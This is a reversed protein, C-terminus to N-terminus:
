KFLQILFEDVWNVTSGFWPEFLWFPHPSSSYEEVQSYIEYGDLLAIADDQGAHFRPYQSNIFLSPVAKESIQHLASAAEWIEPIEEYTGGLWQAAMEGEESESHHFAMVGDMNILAHVETSAAGKRQSYAEYMEMGNTYAVLAALQGGASGGLIAIRSSDLGFRDAHEKLWRISEKVDHVGAPFPAELSLRYDMVATIYGRSALAKALPLQLSRDGSRWGGGHVLLIGPLAVNAKTKPAFVDMKLERYGLSKYEIALFDDIGDAEKSIPKLEPFNKRYKDYSSSLTYTSDKQYGYWPFGYANNVSLDGGFIMPATYGEAETVSLQHAWDAREASNAGPGSSGYEAYYTTEKANPRGWFDWGTEVIHDELQCDIFVTKAFDRWPRGLYVKDVGEAATLHCNKFVYGYEVWEPTSAATIFSNSKSYIECNDFLATASGFIFDTTGEIYCDRYVQRSNEGSAFMTDQDGRFHCNEFLLRDGEAHLAVAQGVSGATNQITMDRFILSNGLVMLTYSDFTDMFNKGTHDDYSIITKEPGDGKFTVNSITGPILLKEKYIGEKIYVTIPKPLYVRIAELADAIFLFDGSGDKAVVIDQQLKGKLNILKGDKSYSHVQQATVAGIPLLLIMLLLHIKVKM